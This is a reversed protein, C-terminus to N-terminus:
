IAQRRGVGVGFPVICIRMRRDSIVENQRGALVDGVIVSGRGFDGRVIDHPMKHLGSFSPLFIGLIQGRDSVGASVVTSVGFVM